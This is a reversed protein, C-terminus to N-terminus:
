ALQCCVQSGSVDSFTGPVETGSTCSLSNAVVNREENDCKVGPALTVAVGMIDSCKQNNVYVKDAEFNEVGRELQIKTCIEKNIVKDMKEECKPTEGSFDIVLGLSKVAYVCGIYKDKAAEYKGACYFSEGSTLSNSCTQEMLVLDVDVDAPSTLIDTYSYIALFGVVLVAVGLILWIFMDREAAGRINVRRIM